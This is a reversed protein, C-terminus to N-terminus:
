WSPSASRSRHNQRDRRLRLRCGMGSTRLAPPGSRPPTPDSSPSAATPSSSPSSSSSGSPPSAASPAPTSLHRRPHPLPRRRLRRHRRIPPPRHDDSLFAFSIRGALGGLTVFIMLFSAQAPPVKLLLVLLTPAWLTVGYVGTQAGLNSLWSVALSRPHSSCNAGPPSTPSSNPPPPRPSPRGPRDRAGLRPVRRAEQQGPRAAHALPPIRPGLRPRRLVLLAPYCGPSSSAAGAWRLPLPYAGFVSGLMIGVPIFATVLGGVRGRLRAPM